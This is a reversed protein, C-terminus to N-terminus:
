LVDAQDVCLQVQQGFPDEQDRDRESEVTFDDIGKGQAIYIRELRKWRDSAPSELAFLYFRLGFRERLTEVEGLNRIGDFVIRKYQHRHTDLEKIAQEALVGPHRAEQRLMNGLDQLDSRTYRQRAKERKWKDVLLKSLMFHKYRM